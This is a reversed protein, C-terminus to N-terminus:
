QGNYEDLYDEFNIRSRKGLCRGHCNDKAQVCGSCVGANSCALLCPRFVAECHSHCSRKGLEVGNATLVVFILLVLCVKPNWM